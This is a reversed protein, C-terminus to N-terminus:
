FDAMGMNNKSDQIMEIVEKKAEKVVRMDGKIRTTEIRGDELKKMGWEGMIIEDDGVKKKVTCQIVGNEDRECHVHKKPKNRGISLPGLETM